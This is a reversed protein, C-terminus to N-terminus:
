DTVVLRHVATQGNAARLRLVYVGPAQPATLRTTTAPSGSGVALGEHAITRGLADAITIEQWFSPPKLRIEHGAAVPNPYTAMESEAFSDNTGQAPAFTQFGMAFVQLQNAAVLPTPSLQGWQLGGEHAVGTLVATAGYPNLSLTHGISLRGRGMEVSELRGSASYSLVAAAGGIPTTIPGFGPWTTTGTTNVVLWANGRRDTALPQFYGLTSAGTFSSSPSERLWQFTGTARDLRTLFYAETSGAIAQFQGFRWQGSLPGAFYVGTADSTSVWAASCTVDQIHRVWQVFGTSDYCAVYTNYSFGTPPAIAVGNYTGNIEACGGAVYVTGQLDVSISTLRNVNHQIISSISDGTAVDFRTAYSDNFTDYGVWVTHNFATLALASATSVQVQGPLPRLLRLWQLRGSADLKSLFFSLGSNPPNYYRHRSDFILSDRYNGLLLVSGDPLGQLKL